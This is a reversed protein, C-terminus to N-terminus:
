YAAGRRAVSQRTSIVKGDRVADCVGPSTYPWRPDGPYMATKGVMLCPSEHTGTADYVTCVSVDQCSQEAEAVSYKEVAACSALLMAAAVSLPVLSPISMRNM